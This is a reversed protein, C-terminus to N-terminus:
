ENTTEEMNLYATLADNSLQSLVGRLRQAIDARGTSYPLSRSLVNVTASYDNSDEPGHRTIAVRVLGQDFYETTTRPSSM